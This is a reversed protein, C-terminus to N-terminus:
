DFHNRHYLVDSSELLIPDPVPKWDFRIRLFDSSLHSFRHGREHTRELHLLVHVRIWIQEVLGLLVRSVCFRRESLDWDIRQRNRVANFLIILDISEKSKRPVEKTENTRNAEVTGSAQIPNEGAWNSNYYRKDIKLSIETSSRASNESALWIWFARVIIKKVIRILLLFLVVKQLHFQKMIKKFEQLGIFTNEYVEDLTSAESKARLKELGVQLEESDDEFNYCLEIVESLHIAALLKVFINDFNILYFEISNPKINTYKEIRLRTTRRSLFHVWYGNRKRNGRITVTITKGPRHCNRTIYPIRRWRWPTSALAVSIKIEQKNAFGM